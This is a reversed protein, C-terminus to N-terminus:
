RRMALLCFKTPNLLRGPEDRVPCIPWWRAASRTRDGGANLFAQVGPRLFSVSRSASRPCTRYMGGREQLAPRNPNHPRLVPDPQM